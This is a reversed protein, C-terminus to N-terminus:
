YFYMGASKISSTSSSYRVAAIRRAAPRIARQMMKDFLISDFYLISRIGILMVIRKLIRLTDGLVIYM